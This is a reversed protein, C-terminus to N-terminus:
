YGFLTKTALIGEAYIIKDLITEKLQERTEASVKVILDWEGYLPHVEDVDNAKCLTGYVTHEKMPETTILIYAVAM